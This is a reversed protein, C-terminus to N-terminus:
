AESPIVIWCIIYALIGAGGLLTFLVWILRVITPDMNFYNAMGYCVGGLVKNTTSRYLRRVNNM